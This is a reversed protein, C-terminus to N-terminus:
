ILGSLCIIWPSGCLILRCTWQEYLTIWDKGWFIFFEKLQLRSENVNLSDHLYTNFNWIIKLFFKQFKLKYSKQNSVFFSILHGNFTLDANKNMQSIIRTRLLMSSLYINPFWLFNLTKIIGSIEILQILNPSWKVIEINKEMVSKKEICHCGYVITETYTFIEM